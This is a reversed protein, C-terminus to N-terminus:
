KIETKGRKVLLDRVAEPPLPEYFYFGQVDDCSKKSLFDLQQKTEVGEALVEMGLSKALNIIIETIARDKENREIGQVFQMDIKLRDIPLAKLRSLSSYETGFDDISISVGLDKLNKLVGITYHPEKIAISETIELELYRPDLSTADLVRKVQQVLRPDNFQIVSLNVALRIPEFGMQQWIKNQRCATKLVWEGISGITGNKEALPIFVEPLILGLRPHRWRLLAEVGVIRGATLNIQPQYYITLEQRESARHLNNSLTMNRQVEEKMDPTCLIYQNRGASKAKFMAINANKILTEADTGDTPYLAIGASATIFFEQEHVAFPKKFLEMVKDAITVADKADKVNQFMIMFEDGGFRAVTDTRRMNRRITEGVEKLIIDGGTHGLIDNVLKFSDLNIFMVGVFTATRGALHLAQNLRDAFLARNPLRTLQDYYAMFQIEREAKTKIFGDALLNALIQLQEIHYNSWTRYSAVSDFGLFGLDREDHKIPIVVLSKVNELKQQHKEAAAAKPLEEIDKAYVLSNDELQQMLWPYRSLPIKRNTGVKPEIGEERWEHTYTMANEAEDILMVYTRDVAFFRGVKQLMAAIHEDINAQSVNAFDFSIESIMKQFDIQKINEAVRTLYLNNVVLGVMFATIFLAIRLIFDFAEIQVSDKPGYIWILVQCAVATATVLILQTRTNFVLAVLLLIIPFAWITISAQEIFKFTFVPISFLITGMILTNKLHERRISNFILIAFGPIFLVASTQFASKLFSEDGPGRPFIYPLFSLLGGALFALALYYYLGTRIEYDLILEDTGLAGKPMLEYYKISYYIAAIPILTFLPAVQPVPHKLAASLLVDTVSALVAPIAVALFILRAQKKTNESRANHRWQLLLALAALLCSLYYVYFFFDWGNNVAVNVWGFDTLVLNYQAPALSPSLGFVYLNIAAPIYFLLCLRLECKKGTLLLIFHLLLGYITTWGAAALRRWFLASAADPASSAMSFAFAWVSLSFSVALFSKNLRSKPNSNIIYIGFFLYIVSATFFLLSFLMSGYAM